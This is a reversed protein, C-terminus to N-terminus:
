VHMQLFKLNHIEEFTKSFDLNIVLFLHKYSTVNYIQLHHPHLIHPPNFQQGQCLNM